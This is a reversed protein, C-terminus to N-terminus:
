PELPRLMVVLRERRARAVLGRGLGSRFNFPSGVTDTRSLVQRRKGTGSSYLGPSLTRRFITAGCSSSFCTSSNSRTPLSLSRPSGNDTTRTSLTGLVLSPFSFATTRISLHDSLLLRAFPPLLPLSRRPHSSNASPTHANAHFPQAANPRPSRTPFPKM